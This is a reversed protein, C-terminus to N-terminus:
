VAQYCKKLSIFNSPHSDLFCLGSTSRWRGCLISPMHLSRWALDQDLLWNKDVGHRWEIGRRGYHCTGVALCVDGGDGLGLHAEEGPQNCPSEADSAEPGASEDGAANVVELIHDVLAGSAM